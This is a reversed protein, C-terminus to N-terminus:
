EGASKACRFGAWDVGFDPLRDKRASASVNFYDFCGGRLVKYTEVGPWFWDDCWEWVNGAMDMVGYPSAGTPYDGVPSTDGICYNYNARSCNPSENGWPYNRGDTGYAAREWEAETPLRKGAWTCYQTASYWSVNVVPYDDYAPNNYYSSRTRSSNSSPPDCVGVDVCAGYQANTVEYKDIYFPNPDAPILIMEGTNLGVYATTHAVGTDDLNNYATATIHYTGSVGYIHNAPFWQDDSVGDGWQWNLRTITSCNSSVTGNITVSLGSVQPSQLTLNIPCTAGTATTFEWVPGATTAGHSDRAIVRWYYHTGDSLTGPDCFVTTADNCVLVDPTSDNAELYVDYTASDGDPDGGTWSLDVNVSQNTAGDSPSPSSPTNPPHNTPGPGPTYNRLVLPLYASQKGRSTVSLKIDEGGAPLEAGYLKVQWSGSPPFSIRYLEYTAGKIHYVDPDTTAPDIENGEPDILTMDISSGAWTTWFNTVTQGQPLSVSVYKTDGQRLHTVGDYISHAGSVAVSIEYYLDILDDASSLHYYKGGTQQAIQQLLTEDVTNGLGITYVPWGRQAFQNAEGSYAGQGDTLLIAVKKNGRLVSELNIYGENLAAGINTGGSSDVMDIANKIQPRKSVVPLLKWYTIADDDFDVISIWDWDDMTDVFVKAAENRLNSPDNTSMSGSSDIILAIDVNQAYPWYYPKYRVSDYTVSVPATYSFTGAWDTSRSAWFNALITMPRLPTDTVVSDWYEGDVYWIIYDSLSSYPVWEFAYSHYAASADFGLSMSHAHSTPSWYNLQVSTTDKGLIEIDIENVPGNGNDDDYTFFGTVLGDGQGAKLRVEFRGYSAKCNSASEGSAYEYYPPTWTVPRSHCNGQTSCINGSDDKNDLRLWLLSNAIAIHGPLWGNYFNPDKQNGYNQKFWLDSDYSDFTEVFCSCAEQSPRPPSSTPDYIRFNGSAHLLGLMYLMGDYYRYEGTPIPPHGPEGINWLAQVFDQTNDTTSALGAVANMAVLGISHSSPLSTGNLEYSSSYVGTPQVDYKQGYFFDLLRDSQTVQWWPDSAFWAYDLAVNMAVRWADYSFIDGYRQGNLEKPHPAGSFDAYNPMLGTVDNGLTASIADKFFQRSTAAADRWFDNDKDAWLAWLEYFAPLHYSPDTFLASNGCPSFVVQKETKNFMNTIQGCAEDPVPGNDEKHLMTDLIAQAEAQYNYIGTGNGWRGAAFLLAMVFWEEGDPAPNQDKVCETIFGSSSMNYTPSIVCSNTLHNEADLQWVFYGERPGSQHQMKTKAFKWLRDFEAKRDMQVAIMMGYSMGESRIDNSDVSLIYAMGDCIPYYVRQTDDAGYFLQNWAADLKTQVQSDSKGLLEAFLNRYNGSYYAGTSPPAIDSSVHSSSFRNEIFMAPASPLAEAIHTEEYVAIGDGAHADGALPVRATVPPALTANVPVSGLLLTLLTVVTLFSRVMRSAKM